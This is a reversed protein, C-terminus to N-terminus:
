PSAISSALCPQRRAAVAPGAAAELPGRAAGCASCQTVSRGGAHHGRSRKASAAAAFRDGSHTPDPTHAGLMRGEFPVCLMFVFRMTPLSAMASVASGKHSAPHPPEDADGASTSPPLLPDVLEPPEPVVCGVGTECILLMLVLLVADCTITMM